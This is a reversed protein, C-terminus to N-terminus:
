PRGAFYGNNTYIGTILALENGTSNTVTLTDDGWFVSASCELNTIGYTAGHANATLALMLAITVPIKMNMGLTASM